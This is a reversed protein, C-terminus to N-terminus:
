ACTGAGSLKQWASADCWCLAHSTDSYFDGEATADCTRPPSAMPTLHLADNVGVVGSASRILGTDFNNGPNAVDSWSLKKAAGLRIAEWSSINVNSSLLNNLVYLADVGGATISLTDAAALYMGTNPDSSFGYAPLATTGDPGRMAGAGLWNWTWDATPDVFTFNGEFSDATGEIVVPSQLATAPGSSGGGGGVAKWYPGLANLTDCICQHVFRDEGTAGGETCDADSVADSVSIVRGNRNGTCTPLNDIITTYQQAGAGSALVAGVVWCWIWSSRTRM